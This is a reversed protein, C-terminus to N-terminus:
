ESAQTEPDMQVTEQEKTPGQLQRESLPQRRFRTLITQRVREFDSSSVGFGQCDSVSLGYSQCWVIMLDRTSLDILQNPPYLILKPGLRKLYKWLALKKRSATVTASSRVCISPGTRTSGLSWWVQSESMLILSM